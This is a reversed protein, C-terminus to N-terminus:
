IIIIVIMMFYTQEIHCSIRLHRLLEIFSLIARVIKMELPESLGSCFRKLFCYFMFCNILHGQM